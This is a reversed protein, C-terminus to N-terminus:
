WGVAIWYGAISGMAVAGGSAYRPRYAYGSTTVQDITVAYLVTQAPAGGANFVVAVCTSPFATPFNTIVDSGNGPYYGWQIMLGNPFKFYGPNAQSWVSNNTSWLASQLAGSDINMQLVNPAWKFAIVNSALATYAIGTATAIRGASQDINGTATLTATQVAGTSKLTAAQVTGTATLNKDNIISFGQMDLDGVVKPTGYAGPAVMVWQKSNGDDYYVYLCGTDSEWWM